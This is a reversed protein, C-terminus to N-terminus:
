GESQTQAYNRNNLTTAEETFSKVAFQKNFRIIVLLM